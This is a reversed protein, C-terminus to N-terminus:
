CAPHEAGAPLVVKGVVRVPKGWSTHVVRSSTVGRRQRSPGPRGLCHCTAARAPATPQQRLATACHSACSRNELSVQGRRLSRVLRCPASAAPDIPRAPRPGVGGDDVAGGHHVGGLRHRRPTGGVGPERVLPRSQTGTQAAARPGTLAAASAADGSSQGRAGSPQWADNRGGTPAAVREFPRQAKGGRAAGWPVCLSPVPAAASRVHNPLSLVCQKPPM